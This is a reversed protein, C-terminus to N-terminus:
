KKLESKVQEAIVNYKPAQSPNKEASYLALELVRECFAKYNSPEDTVDSIDIYKKLYERAQEIAIFQYLAIFDIHNRDSAKANSLMKFLREPVKKGNHLQLAKKDGDKQLKIYPESKAQKTVKASKIFTSFIDDLEASASKTSKKSAQM